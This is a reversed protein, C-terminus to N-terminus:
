FIHFSLLVGVLDGVELEVGSSLWHTHHEVLCSDWKFVDSHGHLSPLVELWSHLKALNWDELDISGFHVLRCGDLVINSLNTTKSGLVWHLDVLALHEEFGDANVDIELMDHWPQEHLWALLSVGEQLCDLLLVPRSSHCDEFSVQRSVCLEDVSVIQSSMVERNSTTEDINQVVWRRLVRFEPRVQFSIRGWGSNELINLVEFFGILLMQCVSRM